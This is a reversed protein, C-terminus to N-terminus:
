ICYSVTSIKKAWAAKNLGTDTCIYPTRMEKMAYKWIEKFALPVEKKRKPQVPDKNGHAPKLAVGTITHPSRMATAERIAFGPSQAGPSLQGYCTPDKQILFQVRHRRCQCM